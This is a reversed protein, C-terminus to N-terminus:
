SCAKLTKGALAPKLETLHAKTAETLAPLKLQNARVEMREQVVRATRIGRQSLRQLEETAAAQTAFGGLSLGIELEPNELAEMKLNMTALEARKKLLAEANPYKGMYVIWRAPLQVADFQWAGGPLASELARRLTVAQADDFPGAELCEKPALDAQAQTEVKKFEATSLVRLADPRLQQALRQPETQQVPAFGYARLMGSTWAFYAGNALILALVLLRLM